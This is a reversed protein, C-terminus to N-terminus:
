GWIANWMTKTFNKFGPTSEFDCMAKFTSEKNSHSPFYPYKSSMLLTFPAFAISKQAHDIM